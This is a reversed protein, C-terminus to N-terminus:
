SLISCEDLHLVPRTSEAGGPRRQMKSHWERLQSCAHEAEKRLKESRAEHQELQTRLCSAEKQANMSSREEQELKNQLEALPQPASLSRVRERLKSCDEQLERLQQRLKAAEERVQQTAACEQLLRQRLESVVDPEWVESPDASSEQAQEEPGEVEEGEEAAATLDALLLDLKDCIAQSRSKSICEGRSSGLSGSVSAKSGGRHRGMDFYSDASASAESDPKSASDPSIQRPSGRKSVTFSDSLDPTRAKLLPPGQRGERYSARRALQAASLHILGDIKKLINDLGNEEDEFVDSLGESDSNSVISELLAPM